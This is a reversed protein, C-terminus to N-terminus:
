AIDFGIQKLAESSKAFVRNNKKLRLYSSNERLMEAVFSNIGTIYINKHQAEALRIIEDIVEVGDIDIYYVSRLRLIINKSGNLQSRFRNLHAEGNIYCLIGKISYVITDSGATLKQLKDGSIRGVIQNNNDNIVLDFYGHSIKEILMISALGVGFLIGIIPDAYITVGATVLSLYFNKRDYKFMRVFHDSEIMQIAVFVLIAAIVALPIFKFYKLFFASIIVVFISSITASLKDSAGTKINLSTRALAATAPIGGMLGSAINALALGRMEKRKNHKTDTMGDAIKASLMTELIAVLAVAFAPMLLSQDFYPKPVQFFVSQINPYLSGLSLLNFPLIHQFSLYGFIIGVPALIIAGPLRPFFKRFLLLSGLFLIFVVFTVYSIASLHRLSEIVNEIFKEHSTLGTLGFAFNLQNLGIIFAVGLTFGHIASGPIFVLYKHLKLLYAVFIIVGSVIALVPLTDAGHTIAYSALIGSLAGTPGVVNYNSGGFLAAVLGAWVATIIGMIPSAHSAVALSVSLPISVLSVAIGSKWNNKIKDKFHIKSQM